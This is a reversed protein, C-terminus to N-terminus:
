SKPTTTWATPTDGTGNNTNLNTTPELLTTTGTVGASGTAPFETTTPTFLATTGSEDVQVQFVSLVAAHNDRTGSITAGYSTLATATAQIAYASAVVPDATGADESYDHLETWTLTGDSATYSGVTETGTNGDNAVYAAVILNGDTSPSVTTTFSITPSNATNNFDSDSADLENGVAFGTVRMITGGWFGSASSSFTFNSAAADGATAVKYQMNASANACTQNAVLTWGSATSITVAGGSSVSLSAVMLDGEALGTPKTITLSTSGTTSNSATSEVTFAM